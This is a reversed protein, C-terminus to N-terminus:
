RSSPKIGVDTRGTGYQNPNAIEFSVLGFSICASEPTTDVIVEALHQIPFRGVADDDTYSRLTM